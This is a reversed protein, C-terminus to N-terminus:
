VCVSVCMLILTRHAFPFTPNKHLRPFVSVSKQPSIFCCYPHFSPVSTNDEVALHNVCLSPICPWLWM